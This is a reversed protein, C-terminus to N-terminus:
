FGVGEASPMAGLVANVMEAKDAETFYDVGKEPTKGPDGKDGKPGQAGTAGKDGKLMIGTYEGEASSGTGANSFGIVRYVEGNWLILDGETVSYGDPTQIQSLNFLTGIEGIEATGTFTYMSLGNKGDAGAPGATTGGGSGEPMADLVASVIEAIDAETFYDTGKEPTKGPDGKDGKDGAPGTAGDAGDFIWFTQKRMGSTVEVEHYGRGDGDIGDTIKIEPVLGNDQVAQLVMGVINVAPEVPPLQHAGVYDWELYGDDNVRPYCRGGDEGAAGDQVRFRHEGNADTIKVDHGTRIIGFDGWNEAEEYTTVEVTPSIGPAGTAPIGTNVYKGSMRSWVMWNGSVADIIPTRVQAEQASAAAAKAEAAYGSTETVFQQYVSPTPDKANDGMETGKRVEGLVDWITPTFEGETTAGCAGVLVPLGVNKKDLLEWPLECRNSSDLASSITQKGVRFVATKVVDDWSEDFAFECTYASVSGAVLPETEQVSVIRNVVKIKLM